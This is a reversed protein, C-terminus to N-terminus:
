RRQRSERAAQDASIVRILRGTEPDARRDAGLKIFPLKRVPEDNDPARVVRHYTVVDGEVLDRVEGPVGSLGNIMWIGDSPVTFGRDLARYLRVGRGAHGRCVRTFHEPTGEVLHREVQGSPNQVRIAASTSMRSLM